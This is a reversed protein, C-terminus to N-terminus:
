WTNGVLAYYDERVNWLCPPDNNNLIHMTFSDYDGDINYVGGIRQWGKIESFGVPEMLPWLVNVDDKRLELQMQLRGHTENPCNISHEVWAFGEIRGPQSIPFYVRGNPYTNRTNNEKQGFSFPYLSNPHPDLKNFWRNELYLFSRDIEEDSLARDYLFTQLARKTSGIAGYNDAFIGDGIDISSALSSGNKDSCVILGEKVFLRAAFLNQGWGFRRGVTKNTSGNKGDFRVGMGYQDSQLAFGGEQSSKRYTGYGGVYVSDIGDIVSIITLDSKPDLSVPVTKPPELDAVPKGTIEYLSRARTYFRM